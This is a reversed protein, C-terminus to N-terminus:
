GATRAVSWWPGFEAELCLRGLKRYEFAVARILHEMGVASRDTAALYAATVAVNRVNGGSLEFAKACFELDVDDGLTLRTTHAVWLRRRQAVDPNAFDIVLSLRRTFAEDVNARLTQEAGAGGDLYHFLFPPLKRRAAERFDTASSIIM